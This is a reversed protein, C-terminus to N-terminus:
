LEEERPNRFNDTHYGWLVKGARNVVACHGPMNAIEGLFLLHEDRKFPYGSEDPHQIDAVCVSMLPIPPGDFLEEKLKEDVYFFQQGCFLCVDLRSLTGAPGRRVPLVGEKCAPCRSKYHGSTPGIRALDSHRVHLLAKRLNQGPETM